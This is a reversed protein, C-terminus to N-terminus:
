TITGGACNQFTGIIRDGLNDEYGVGTSKLMRDRDDLRSIGTVRCEADFYIIM